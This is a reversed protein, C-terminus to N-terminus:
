IAKQDTPQSIKMEMQIVKGSNYSIPLSALIATQMSTIESSKFRETYSISLLAHTPTCLVREKLAAEIKSVSRLTFNHNGSLLKSIEAESKGMLQALDKQKLNKKELIGAIFHAIEMSKDVFIKDEESLQEVSQKVEPIRVSREIKKKM